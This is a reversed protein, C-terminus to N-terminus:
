IRWLGHRTLLLSYGSDGTEKLKRMKEKNRTFLECAICLFGNQRLHMEFM